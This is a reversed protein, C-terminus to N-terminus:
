AHSVPPKKLGPQRVVRGTGEEPLSIDGGAPPVLLRHFPVALSGGPLAYHVLDRVLTGGPCEAFFHQHHWFRYPGSRQEDVFFASPRVHTIETVWQLPLRAVPRLRYRVIMGSYIDPPLEGLVEFALWAPTIRALNAPDSFFRWAQALDVALKQSAELRYLRM